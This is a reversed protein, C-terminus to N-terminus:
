LPHNEIDKEIMIVILSLFSIFLYFIVFLISLVMNQFISELFSLM